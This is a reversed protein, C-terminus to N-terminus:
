QKYPDYQYRSYKKKCQEPLSVIEGRQDSGDIKPEKIKFILLLIIEPFKNFYELFHKENNYHAVEFKL